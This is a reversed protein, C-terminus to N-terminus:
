DQPFAAMSDSPVGEQKFYVTVPLLLTKRWINIHHRVLFIMEPSAYGCVALVSPGRDKWALLYRLMQGLARDANSSATLDAKLEVLVRERVVMDPYADRSGGGHKEDASWSVSPRTEIQGSYGRRQLSRTFSEQYESETLDVGAQRRRPNWRVLAVAINAVEPDRIFEKAVKLAAEDTPADMIRMAQSPKVEPPQADVPSKPQAVVSRALEPSERRLEELADGMSLDPAAVPDGLALKSVLDKIAPIMRAGVVIAVLVAAAGVLFSIVIDM